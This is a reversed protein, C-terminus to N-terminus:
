SSPGALRHQEEGVMRQGAAIRDDGGHQGFRQREGALNRGAGADAESGVVGEAVISGALWSSGEELDASTARGM